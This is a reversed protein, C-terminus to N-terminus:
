LNNSSAAPPQEFSCFLERTLCARLCPSLRSRAQVLRVKECTGLKTSPRYSREYALSLGQLTNIYYLFVFHDNASFSRRRRCRCRCRCHCRRKRFGSSVAESSVWKAPFAFHFLAPFLLFWLSLCSPTSSSTTTIHLLGHNSCPLAASNLCRKHRNKPPNHSRSASTLRTGKCEQKFSPVSM